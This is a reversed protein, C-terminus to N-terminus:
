SKNIKGNEKPNENKLPKSEKVTKQTHM